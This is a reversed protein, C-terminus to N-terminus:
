ENDSVATAADYRPAEAGRGALDVVALFRVAFSRGLNTIFFARRNKQFSVLSTLSEASHLM